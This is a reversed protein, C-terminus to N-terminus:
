HSKKEILYKKRSSTDSYEVSELQFDLFKKKFNSFLLQIKQFETM